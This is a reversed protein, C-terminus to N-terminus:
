EQIWAATYMTNTDGKLLAISKHVKDHASWEDIKRADEKQLMETSVGTIGADTLSKWGRLKLVQLKPLTACIIWFNENNGFQTWGSLDLDILGKGLVSCLNSFWIKNMNSDLHKSAGTNSLRCLIKQYALKKIAM